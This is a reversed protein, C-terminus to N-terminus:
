IVEGNITIQRIGYSTALIVYIPPTKRQAKDEDTLASMPLITVHYGLLLPTNAEIITYTQNNYVLTLTDDTWIKDTTLYGNSLYKVLEQSICSHIAALGTVGKIKQTLLNVLSDTVTQHLVILAFENMLDKGDKLNGGMNRIANALYIDVNMNSEIVNGYLTDSINEEDIVEKTFAYDRITDTGYININSFYAAITMEAGLKSSYKVAFNSVVDSDIDNTRGLLIKQNIGYIRTDAERTQAVTKINAYDGTYAVIIEENKLSAITEALKDQTIGRIVKVKNGGNDFFMKIYATTTILTKTTADANWQSYSNYTNVTDINGETTILVVTDRLANVSSTVHQVINVDVFRKININSM